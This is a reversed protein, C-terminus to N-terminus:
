RYGKRRNTTTECQHLKGLRCNICLCGNIKHTKPRGKTIYELITADNGDGVIVDDDQHKQHIEAIIKVIQSRIDESNMAAVLM